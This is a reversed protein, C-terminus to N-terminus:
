GSRSPAPIRCESRKRQSLHMATCPRRTTRMTRKSFPGRGELTTSGTTRALSCRLATQCPSGRTVLSRENPRQALKNVTWTDWSRLSRITSGSCHRASCASRTTPSPPSCTWCGLVRTPAATLAPNSKKSSRKSSTLHLHWATTFFHLQSLPAAAVRYKRVVVSTM